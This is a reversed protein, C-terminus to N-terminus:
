APAFGDRYPLFVKREKTREELTVLFAPSPGASDESSFPSSKRGFPPDGWNGPQGFRNGPQGFPQAVKGKQKGMPAQAQVFVLLAQCCVLALTLVVAIRCRM